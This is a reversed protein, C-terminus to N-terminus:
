VHSVKTGMGSFGSAAPVEQHTAHVLVIQPVPRMAVGEALVRPLGTLCTDVGDDEDGDRHHDRLDARPNGKPGHREEGVTQVHPRVNDSQLDSSEGVDIRPAMRAVGAEAEARTFHVGEPPETVGYHQEREGGEHDDLAHLPEDMRGGNSVGPRKKNGTQPQHDVTPTREEQIRATPCARVAVSAVIGGLMAGLDTM